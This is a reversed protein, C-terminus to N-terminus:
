SRGGRRYILLGERNADIGALDKRYASRALWGQPSQEATFVQYGKGKAFAAFYRRTWLVRGEETVTAVM